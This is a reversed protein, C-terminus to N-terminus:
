LQEEGTTNSIRKRVPLMRCRNTSCKIITPKFKNNKKYFVKEPFYSKILEVTIIRELMSPLKGGLWKNLTTPFDLVKILDNHERRAVLSVQKTTATITPFM